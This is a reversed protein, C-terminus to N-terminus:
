IVERLVSERVLDDHLKKALKLIISPMAIIEIFMIEYNSNHIKDELTILLLPLENFPTENIRKILQLIFKDKTLNESILFKDEEKDIDSAFLFSSIITKLRYDVLSM